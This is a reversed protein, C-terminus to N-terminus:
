AGRRKLWAGHLASLWARAGAVSDTEEAAPLAPRAVMVVPIALERAAELKAYTAPTGANKSVLIEIRERRLLAREEELGFPGRALLVRARPLAHAFPDIARVLYDHQPAEAFPAIEQRGIALFVRRPEAGLATVAAEMSAVERWMDGARPQWAPRTVRLFPVGAERAAAVANESIRAAFPHTADILANTAEERLHRALGEV